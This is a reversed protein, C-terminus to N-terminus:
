WRRLTKVLSPMAERVSSTRSPNDCQGAIVSIRGTTGPPITAAHSDIVNGAAGPRHPDQDDVIV